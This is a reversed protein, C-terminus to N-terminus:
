TKSRIVVGVIAETPFVDDSWPLDNHVIAIKFSSGAPVFAAVRFNRFNVVPRTAMDFEDKDLVLPGDGHDLLLELSTLGNFEGEFGDLVFSVEVYTDRSVAVWKEPEAQITIYTGVFTSDSSHAVLEFGDDFCETASAPRPWRPLSM